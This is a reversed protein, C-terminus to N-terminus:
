LGTAVAESWESGAFVINKLWVVVEFFTLKELIQMDSSAYIKSGNPGLFFSLYACILCM